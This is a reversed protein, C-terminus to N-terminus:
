APSSARQFMAVNLPLIQGMWIAHTTHDLLNDGTNPHVFIVLGDRHTALWPIINGFHEPDFALQCSWVPHPGVPKKHMRGMKLPFKDRASECLVRAQELTEESFYVHAHFGSIESM